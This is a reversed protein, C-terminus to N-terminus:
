EFDILKGKGLVAAYPNDVPEYRKPASDWWDFDYFLEPRRELYWDRAGEWWKWGKWFGFPIISREVVLGEVSDWSWQLACPLGYGYFQMEWANEAPFKVISGQEGYPQLVLLMAEKFGRSEWLSQEKKFGYFDVLVCDSKIFLPLEEAQLQENKDGWWGMVRNGELYFNTFCFRHIIWNPVPEFQFEDLVEMIELRTPEIGIEEARENALRTIVGKTAALKKNTDAAIHKAIATKLKEKM